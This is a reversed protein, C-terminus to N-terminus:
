QEKPVLIASGKAKDRIRKALKEIKDLRDFIRASIVHQGGEDIDASLQKSLEALESAAAKLETYNKETSQREVRKQMEKAPNRPFQQQGFLAGAIWLVYVISKM